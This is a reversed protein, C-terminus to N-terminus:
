SRKGRPMSGTCSLRRVILTAVRKQTVTHQAKLTALQRSAMQSNRLSRLHFHPKSTASFGENGSHRTMFVLRSTLIPRWSSYTYRIPRLSTRHKHLLALNPEHLTHRDLQLCGATDNAEKDVCAQVITSPKTSFAYLQERQFASTYM